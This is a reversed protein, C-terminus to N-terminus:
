LRVRPRDDARHPQGKIALVLAPEDPIPDGFPRAAAPDRRPSSPQEHAPREVDKTQFPDLQESLDVVYRRLPHRLASAELTLAQEPSLYLSPVAAALRGKRALVRATPTRRPAACPLFCSPEPGM